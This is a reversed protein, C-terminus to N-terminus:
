LQSHGERQALTELQWSSHFLTLTREVVTLQGEVSDFALDSDMHRDEWLDM